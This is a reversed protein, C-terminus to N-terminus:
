VSTTNRIHTKSLFSATKQNVVAFDTETYLFSNECTEILVFSNKKRWLIHLNKKKKSFSDFHMVFLGYIFPAQVSTGMETVSEIM